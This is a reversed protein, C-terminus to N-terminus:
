FIIRRSKKKFNYVREINNMYEKVTAQKDMVMPARDICAKLEEFNCLGKKQISQVAQILSRDTSFTYRGFISQTIAFLAITEELFKVRFLGDRFNPDVKKRSNMNGTMLYNATTLVNVRYKKVVDKLIIYDEIGVKIYARLFDNITWKDQRSNMMAIQSLTLKDAVVYYVPLDIKKSVEFRHQGDVIMNKENDQYVIIPCYPLLNLGNNIDEIIKNIKKQNLNRNGTISVFGDYEKTSEIKPVTM